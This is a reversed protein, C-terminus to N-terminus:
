FQNESTLFTRADICGGPRWLAIADNKWVQIGVENLESNTQCFDALFPDREVVEAPSLIACYQYGLGAYDRQMSEAKLRANPLKFMLDIRYGDHLMAKEQLPERCPNFHACHLIDKLEGDGRDYIAQWLDMSIKGLELLTDTRAQQNEESELAYQEVAHIFPQAAESYTVEPTLSPVIHSTTTDAISANKEYVTVRIRQDKAKADLYAFYAKLLGIIGGGIITVKTEPYTPLDAKQEELAPM